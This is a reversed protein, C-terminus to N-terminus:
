PILGYDRMPQGLKRHALDLNDNLTGEVGRSGGRRGSRWTQITRTGYGLKEAWKKTDLDGMGAWALIAADIFEPPPPSRLADRVIPVLKCCTYHKLSLSRLDAKDAPLYYAEVTLLIDGSLLRRTIGVVKGADAARDHATAGQWYPASKLRVSGGRLQAFTSDRQYLHTAEATYGIRLANGVSYYPFDDELREVSSM